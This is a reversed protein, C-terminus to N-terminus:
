GNKDDDYLEERVIELKQIFSFPSEIFTGSNNIEVPYTSGYEFTYMKSETPSMSIDVSAYEDIYNTNFDVDLYYAKTWSRIKELFLNIAQIHKYKLSHADEIYRKKRAALNLYSHGRSHSVIDSMYRSYDTANNTIKNFAAKLYQNYTDILKNLKSKQIFLTIFACIMIFAVECMTVILPTLVDVTGESKTIFLAPLMALVTAVVAIILALSASKGVVRGLLYQRVNKASNNLGEDESVNSKPLMGQVKILDSYIDDAERKLDEIQYRNLETAEDEEFTCFEKMRDATQNLTREATRLAGELLSEAYRKQNSWIGVDTSAGDSFLGFSKKRVLSESNKPLRISVPIEMRYTPLEPELSLKEKADRKIREEIVYRSSKLRNVLSQLSETMLEKDIKTNLNYLRYAQLTGSDTDNIALLLISIWFNFEDGDRKVPGGDVFDCVLFRCTSPYQNIKWFESSESEKHTLWAGGINENDVFNERVTVILISSPMKGDFKYKEKLLEYAKNKKEDIVPRYVTRPAKNEEKIHGCEFKIEPVPIGGLMQTLRILPVHSEAIKESSEKNVSFNYPNQKNSEFGAKASEDEFRVIIARWEEKDNILNSLEPVVTDITTGSEIWKCVGIRDNNIAEMYLPQYKAFEDMTKQNQIIVSYVANVVKPM